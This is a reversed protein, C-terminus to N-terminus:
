SARRILPKIVLWILWLTLAYFPVGLVLKAVGLASLNHALYLPVDIALRLIFLSCWILTAVTFRQRHARKKRWTFGEGILFGVIVGVFPWGILLSVIGIALSSANTVLGQLFYDAPNNDHVTLWVTLAISAAGVIAQTLASRVILQRVLAALSLSGSFAIALWINSTLQFSVVFVLTPVISEAIGLWGGMSKVISGRSVELEGGAYTLGLKSAIQRSAELWVDNTESDATM